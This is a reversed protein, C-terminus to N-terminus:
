LTFSSKNPKPYVQLPLPPPVATLPAATRIRHELSSHLKVYRWLTRSTEDNDRATKMGEQPKRQSKNMWYPEGFDKIPSSFTALANKAFFALSLFNQNSLKKL